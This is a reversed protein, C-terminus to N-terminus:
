GDKDKKTKIQKIETDGSDGKRKQVRETISIEYEPNRPGEM